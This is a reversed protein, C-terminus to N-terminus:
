PPEAGGCGGRGGSSGGPGILLVLAITGITLFLLVGLIAGGIALGRTRSRQPPGGREGGADGALGNEEERSNGHGAEM